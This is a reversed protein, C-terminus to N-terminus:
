IAGLLPNNFLEDVLSERIKKTKADQKIKNLRCDNIYETSAKIGVSLIDQSLEKDSDLMENYAPLFTITSLQDGIYKFEIYEKYLYTYEKQKFSELSHKIISQLVILDKGMSLKNLM